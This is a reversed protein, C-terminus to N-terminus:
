PTIDNLALSKHVSLLCTKVYLFVFIFILLLFLLDPRLSNFGSIVIGANVNVYIGIILRADVSALFAATTESDAPEVM